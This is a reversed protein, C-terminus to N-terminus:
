PAVLERMQEMRKPGVGSVADLEDVSRFPGNEERFDIIRQATV